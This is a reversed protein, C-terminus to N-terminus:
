GAHRHPRRRRERAREPLARDRGRDRRARHPLRAGEGPPRPPRQVAARRRAAADRPRRHPVGPGRRRGAPRRLARRDARPPRPLRPGRRRRRDAARRGGRDPEAAPRPRRHVGPHQRDPPRDHDARRRGRDAVGDVLDDDRDARVHEAPPRRLAPRIEDVLPPPLAEGGLLLQELSALAGLGSRDAAIVAAMSPTCQVHTVAHRGVQAVFGADLEEDAAIAADLDATAAARGVGVGANAARRLEDLDELAGLVADEDVGFDILCAIEDVGLTACATSRPSAARPRASCAPRASTASSPTTWSSPSRTPTSTTSIPCRRRRRRPAEGPKAFSTTEWQVKNILDTSTKCTTSSRSACSASAGRRRRARRVHAADGHRPRRRPPRRRPVRRPLRRRQRRPRGPEDRAPQHPHQRRAAGAMEFTAPSGGATIWIKPARQVPPPFM